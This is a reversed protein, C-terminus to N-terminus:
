VKMLGVNNTTVPMDFKVRAPKDFACLPKTQSLTAINGDADYLDTEDSGNIGILTMTIVDSGLDGDVQFSIPHTASAQIYQESTAAVKDKTFITEM